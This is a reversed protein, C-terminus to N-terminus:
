WFCGLFRVLRCTRENESYLVRCRVPVFGVRERVLLHALGNGRRPVGEMRAVEFKSSAYIREINGNNIEPLQFYSVLDEDQKM